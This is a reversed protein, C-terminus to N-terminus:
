LGGPEQPEEPDSHQRQGGIGCLEPPPLRNTFAFSSGAQSLRADLGRGSNSYEHQYTAYVQPVVTVSNRKLPVAFKAGVGTQRSSANQQSVNLNLSNAGSETFGDVWLRSYALSLMPTAVLCKLKLDYGTEGYANFMNGTTSSKATRNLIGFNLDRELNFLNL